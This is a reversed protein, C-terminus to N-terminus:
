QSKQSIQDLLSQFSLDIIKGACMVRLGAILSPNPRNIIKQNQPDLKLSKLIAQKQANTLAVVSEVIVQDKTTHFGSSKM